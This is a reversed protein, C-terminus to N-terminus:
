KVKYLVKKFESLYDSPAKKNFEACYINKAEKVKESNWWDYINIYNKNLFLNLKDTKTFLINDNELIKYIKKADNNLTDYINPDFIITPYDLNILEM